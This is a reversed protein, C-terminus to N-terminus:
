DVLRSINFFPIHGKSTDTADSFLEFGIFSESDSISIQVPMNALQDLQTHGTQALLSCTKQGNLTISYFLGNDERRLNIIVDGSKMQIEADKGFMDTSIDDYLHASEIKGALTKTPTEESNTYFTM